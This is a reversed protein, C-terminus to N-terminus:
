KGGYLTADQFRVRVPVECRLCEIANDLRVVVPVLGSAKDASIGIFVVKGVEGAKKKGNKMVDASQGM